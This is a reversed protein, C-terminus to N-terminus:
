GHPKLWGVQRLATAFNDCEIRRDIRDDTTLLDQGDESAEDVWSWLKHLRGVVAYTDLGTLVALEEVKPNDHLNKLMKIWTGAM